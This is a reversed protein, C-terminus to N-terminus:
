ATGDGAPPSAVAPPPAFRMLDRLPEHPFRIVSDTIQNLRRAGGPLLDGNQKLFCTNLVRKGADKIAQVAPVYDQDGSVIVAVDYAPCLQLLDVALKVDVAKERGFEGTFLDYKIAGARRSEVADVRSSIGDQVAVWGRFRELMTQRLRLLRERLELARTRQPPGSLRTLEMRYPEHKCLIPLLVALDQPYSWPWFDIHQIVYWYARVRTKAGVMSVLSDFFGGWDADPLYDERRFQGPFLDLLAYRLNEGDVFICAREFASM